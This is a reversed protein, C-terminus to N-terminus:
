TKLQHSMKLWFKVNYQKEMETSSRSSMKKQFEQLLIAEKLECSASDSRVEIPHSNIKDHSTAGGPLLM